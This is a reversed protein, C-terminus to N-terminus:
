QGKFTIAAKAANILSLISLNYNKYAKDFATGHDVSTRIIPLNLSINISEEFYLAKLAPLVQDHYMGVILEFRQLGFGTFAGDPVLPDPYIIKEHPHTKIFNALFIPIKTVSKKVLSPNDKAFQMIKALDKTDKFCAALLAKPSLKHFLCFNALLIAQTITKEENGIAGEDGAHPNLGLVGISKIKSKLALIVLFESLDGLTIKSAVKCLPIHQTYLATYLKKCGLVMIANKHFWEGLASTHGLFPLRAMEWSRKNIPLTVLADFCGAQVAHAAAKFSAFSYAGAEQTHAGPHIIFDAKFGEDVPYSFLRIKGDNQKQILGKKSHFDLQKQTFEFEVLNLKEFENLDKKLLSAAQSLLGKHVFYYPTCFSALKKHALFLLEVSIGNLDGISFALKM